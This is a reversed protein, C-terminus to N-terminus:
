INELAMKALNQIDMCKKRENALIKFLEMCVRADDNARHACEVRIGYRKALSQLRYPGEETGRYDPHFDRAMRLTDIVYNALPQKGIRELESNIFHIDFPANHAVLITKETGCYELFKEIAEPASPSGSVMFDDIGTLSTIYMPIEVPPKILMDFPVDLIGHRDFKVAGIEILHDTAPHLGTTETDVAVYTFDRDYFNRIIRKNDTFIKLNSM